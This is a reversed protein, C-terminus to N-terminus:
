RRKRRAALKGLSTGLDLMANSLKKVYWTIVFYCGIIAVVAFIIVAAEYM